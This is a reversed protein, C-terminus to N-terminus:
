SYCDTNAFVLPSRYFMPGFSLVVACLLVTWGLALMLTVGVGAKAGGIPATCVLEYEKDLKCSMLFRISPMVVGAPVGAHVATADQVHAPRLSTSCPSLLTCRVLLSTLPLALMGILSTSVLSGVLRIFGGQLGILWEHNSM